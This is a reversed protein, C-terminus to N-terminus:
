VGEGGGERPKRGVGSLVDFMNNKDGNFKLGVTRGIECVDESTVKDNGHLVLWNNWEKNESTQSTSKSSVTQSYARAKPAGLIAKRQRSTRRLARLVERRDSDSLRAIRKLNLACHRLYGGGKRKTVRKGGTSHVPVKTKLKPAAGMSESKHTKTWELSWPGSSTAGDRGPPCSSTRRVVKKDEILCKRSQRDVKCEGEFVQAPKPETSSLLSLDEAPASTAHTLSVTPPKATASVLSLTMHRKEDEKKEILM